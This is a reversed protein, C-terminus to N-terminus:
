APDYDPDPTGPQWGKLMKRMGLFMGWSGGTVWWGRDNEEVDPWAARIIAEMQEWQPILAETEPSLRSDKTVFALANDIVGGNRRYLNSFNECWKMLKEHSELNENPTFPLGYHDAAWQVDKIFTPIREIREQREADLKARIRARRKEVIEAEYGAKDQSVYDTPQPNASLATWKRQIDRFIEKFTVKNGHASQIEGHESRIVVEAKFQDDLKFSRHKKEGLSKNDYYGAQVDFAVEIRRGQKTWYYSWGSLNSREPGESLTDDLIRAIAAVFPREVRPTDPSSFTMGPLDRNIRDMKQRQKTPDPDQKVHGLPRLPVVEIVRFAGRNLFIIQEPERDNIVAQTNSRASDEIADFGAKRFLATQEVGSRTRYAPRGMEEDQPDPPTILDIQVATLFLKGFKTKGTYRGKYTKRATALMSLVQRYEFGMRRLLSVAADESDIDGVNIKKKSTDKLVRMYRAGRGYWIDAPHSLVYALPYAYVGVPDSHDPTSYATRDMANDKATFQVYLGATQRERALALYRKRFDEFSSPYVDKYNVEYLRQSIDRFRM